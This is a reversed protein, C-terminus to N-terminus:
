GKLLGELAAAKQNAPLSFAADYMAITMDCTLNPQSQYKKPNAAVDVLKPPMRSLIARIAIEVSRKDRHHNNKGQSALAQMLWAQERESYEKPLAQTINLQGALLKACADYSVSRAAKFEDLVLKAFTELSADDAQAILTPYVDQTIVARMASIIEGDNGGLEKVNWARDIAKAMAEPFRKEIAAFLPVQRAGLLLEQKSPISSFSATTEGGLSVRTIVHANILENRTPYWMDSTPVSAVRQIFQEPLGALRYINLMRKTGEKQLSPDMGPFSPTHFGIKANPTTAREKGALFVYTCASACISEVYTNLGRSRVANALQEAELLRGGRSSLVLTTVAPAVSMIKEIEKASGERLVGDVLISKGDSLFTIKYDGMPDQGLAILGLEKLLPGYNTTLSGAMSICGLIVMVKALSSWIARGGRAVHNNSSRWIGVVSWLWLVLWIVIAVFITLALTRLSWTDKAFESLISLAIFPLVGALLSGNIWYSTPLSLEGRWHRALYSQSPAATRKYIPAATVEDKPQLELASDPATFYGTTPQASSSVQGTAQVTGKKYFWWSLVMVLAAGIVAGMSPNKSIVLSPLVVLWAFIVAVLYSLGPRRKFPRVLKVIIVWAAAVIIPSALGGVFNGIEGASM